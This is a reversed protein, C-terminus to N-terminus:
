EREMVVLATLRREHVPQVVAILVGDLVHDALRPASEQGDGGDHEPAITTGRRPSDSNGFNM